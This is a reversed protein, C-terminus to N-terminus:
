ACAVRTLALKMRHGKSASRGCVEQLDANLNEFRIFADVVPAGDISYIDRDAPLRATEMFKGFAAKVAPFPVKNLDDWTAPKKFQTWWFFSVAKDFPNRIICFKFYANFVAEGVADRVEAARMHSYFKHEKKWLEMRSGVIGADSVTETVAHAEDHASNEPLCYPEFFIEVSTGATKITKLYIFKKRHSLLM